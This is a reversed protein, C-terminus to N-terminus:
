IFTFANMCMMVQLRNGISMAFVMRTDIFCPPFVEEGKEFYINLGKVRRKMIYAYM